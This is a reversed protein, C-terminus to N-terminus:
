SSMVINVANQVFWGDVGRFTQQKSRVGDKQMRLGDEFVEMTVLKNYPLKFAKLGGHFYFQKNTLALMGNGQHKLETIQVPRGKFSGTRYYVGKAVRFSMGQSRGQYETRTHPEYLDVNPFVWIVYESKQFLFPVSRGLNVRKPQKGEGLDRLTGAMVVRSFLGKTDLEAQGLQLADKFALLRDEEEQTLVDDDLFDTVMDEYAERYVALRQKENIHAADAIRQLEPVRDAIPAASDLVERFITKMQANGEEFAAKCDKHFRRFLGASKGCYICKPM